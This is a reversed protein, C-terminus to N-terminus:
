TVIAMGRVFDQALNPDKEQRHVLDFLGAKVELAFKRIIAELRLYLRHPDARTCLKRVRDRTAGHLDPRDRNSDNWASDLALRFVCCVDSSLDQWCQRLIEVEDPYRLCGSYVCTQSHQNRSQGTKRGKSCKLCSCPQEPASDAAPDDSDPRLTCLPGAAAGYVEESAPAYIADLEPRGLDLRGPDASGDAASKAPSARRKGSGPSPVSAPNSSTASAAAIALQRLMRLEELEDDMDRALSLQNAGVDGGVGNLMNKSEMIIDEFQEIKTRPQYLQIRSPPKTPPPLVAAVAAAAAAASSSGLSSSSSSTSLPAGSPISGSAGSAASSAAASPDALRLQLLQELIREQEEEASGSVPAAPDEVRTENFVSAAGDAEVKAENTGNTEDNEAEKALKVGNWKAKEKPTEMAAAADNTAAASM